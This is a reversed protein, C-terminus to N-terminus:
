YQWSGGSFRFIETVPIETIMIEPQCALTEVEPGYKVQHKELYTLLGIYPTLASDTKKLHVDWQGEYAVTRIFVGQEYSQVKSEKESHCNEQRLHDMYEAAFTRLSEEIQRDTEATCLGSWFFVLFVAFFLQFVPFSGILYSRSKM